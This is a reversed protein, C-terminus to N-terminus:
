DAVALAFPPFVGFPEKAALACDTADLFVVFALYPCVIGSVDFMVSSSSSRQDSIFLGFLSASM